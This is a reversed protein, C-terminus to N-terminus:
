STDEEYRPRSWNRFQCWSVWDILNDSNNLCIEKRKTRYFRNFLGRDKCDFPKYVAPDHDCHYGVCRQFERHRRFVEGMKEPTMHYLGFERHGTEYDEETMEFWVYEGHYKAVGSIPGDYYNEHWMMELDPQDDEDDYFWSLPIIEEGDCWRIRVNSNRYDIDWVFPEPMGYLIDKYEQTGHDERTLGAEKVRWEHWYDFIHTELSEKVMDWKVLDVKNM